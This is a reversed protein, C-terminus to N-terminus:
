DIVLRAINLLALVQQRGVIVIGALAIWRATRWSSRRCHLRCLRLHLGQWQIAEIGRGTKIVDFITRLVFIAIHGIYRRWWYRGTWLARSWLIISAHNKAGAGLLIYAYKNGNEKLM